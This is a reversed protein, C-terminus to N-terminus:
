RKKKERVEASDKKRGRHDVGAVMGGLSAVSVM